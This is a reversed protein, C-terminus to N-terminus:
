TRFLLVDSKEAREIYKQVDASLLFGESELKKAAKTVEVVYGSHDTYREELSLRPDGAEIREARTAKFPIHQGEAENGDDGGFGVRRLAWGTTTAIPAAVEPLRIGSIENGDADVKSVFNPYTPRGIVSPPINTVIGAEFGEGFDLLYRTTILGTYTVEPITPWGLEAQPVIGTQSGTQPVAFVAGESARPVRSSPPMTGNSVWADLALLLARETPVPDVANTFQQGGYRKTVDGVRHSAGSVMYFRVNDPDPLDNGLTDTHLLSCAKVWYESSTNIDFRKACTDNALDREDRGSTKGTMHDTLVQHAFPFVGEPYLHNQRNRETTDTRAFRFNVQDGSGAGTVSLIGDLVCKDNIDGNFGLRQFDNLLRSPQSISHSFTHDVYGSLPNGNETSSNRLFSVFDRVAALGVGAVVPDKATYKFEYIWSQRFPTGVPLLNIASGDPSCYDWADDPVVVPEDDLLERITLQAQSKDLSAASYVLQSEITANNDFVIYEYAPGTITKADDTAVPVDIKMEDFERACFDWGCSAISYGLNMVFGTGADKATSPDNTLLADNLLGTRMQGRNNFDFILRRNGRELDVPKLIFIDTSYEVMGLANVPAYELDTIVANRPDTPDIEGYASGRLKEYQGVSGFSM